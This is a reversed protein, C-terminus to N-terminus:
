ADKAEVVDLAAEVRRRLGDDDPIVQRLVLRV